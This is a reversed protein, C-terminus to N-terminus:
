RKLTPPSRGRSCVRNIESTTERKPGQPYNELKQEASRGGPQQQKTQEIHQDLKEDASLEKGSPARHRSEFVPVDAIDMPRNIKNLRAL